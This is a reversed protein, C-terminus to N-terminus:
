NLKRNIRPYVKEKIYDCIYDENIENLVEINRKLIEVAKNLAKEDRDENENEPLNDYVLVCISSLIVAKKSSVERTETKLCFKCTKCQEYTNM